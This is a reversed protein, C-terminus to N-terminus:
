RAPHIADRGADKAAYLARDARVLLDSATDGAWHAWGLSITVHVDAGELPIPADAVASRLREAARLVGARDTNPLLV